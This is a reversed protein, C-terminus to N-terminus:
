TNGNFSLRELAAQATHAQSHDPAIEVFELLAERAEEEKGLKELALGIGLLSGPIKKMEWSERFSKLAEEYDNLRLNCWGVYSALNPLREFNPDMRRVADFHDLADGPNRTYYEVLGLQYRVNVFDPDLEAAMEFEKRADDHKRRRYAKLGQNYYELARAPTELEPHESRPAIKAGAEIADAENWMTLLVTQHRRLPVRRGLDDASVVQTLDPTPQEPLSKIEDAIEKVKPYTKGLEDDSMKVAKSQEKRSLKLVGAAKIIAKERGIPRTVGLFAKTPGDFKGELVPPHIIQEPTLEIREDIELTRDSFADPFGLGRMEAPAKIHYEHQPLEFDTPKGFRTKILVDHLKWDEQHLYHCDNTLVVPHDYRKAIELIGAAAKNEEEMNHNFIELYFRDGMTEALRGYMRDAEAPNDKFYHWAVPGALCASLCIIGEGYQELLNWDVLGLKQMLCNEDWSATAIRILNSYGTANSALLLLHHRFNERKRINEAADEVFYAEMGIIPKIGRASAERAFTPAMAMEGHDTLAFSKMGIEEVKKLAEKVKLPSDSYSGEMHNHLHVFESSM